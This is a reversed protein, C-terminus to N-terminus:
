GAGSWDLQDTLPVFTGRMPVGGVRVTNRPVTAGELRRLVAVWSGDGGAAGPWPTGDYVRALAPHTNAVFLVIASAGAGGMHKPLDVDKDAMVRGQDDLGLVRLGMTSLAARAENRQGPDPNGMDDQAGVQLAWSAVSRQIGGGRNIMTTLLHDLCRQQDAIAEARAPSVMEGLRAVMDQVTDSDPLEDFLLLDAAALLTGWTDQYRADFGLQQELAQAYRAFTPQWRPWEDVMRRLLRRGIPALRKPSLDPVRSGPPQALLKLRAFRSEDQPLLPVPAISSVMAAFRVTFSHGVHNDGGRLAKGGSSSQRMLEVVAAKKEPKNGAEFEDVFVPQGRAQMAQRLGAETVNSAEQLWDGFLGIMLRQLSSKGSGKEGDIIGHTRWPLAGCVLGQAIWGLTVHAMFSNQWNWTALIGLVEQGPDTDAQEDSPRLQPPFAPYIYPGYRGPRRYAGGIWVTDGLHLVLGGDEGMWAGPGRMQKAPDIIGEKACARMLVNACQDAHLAGTLEGGGTATKPTRKGWTELLWQLEPGFLSILHSRGHKDAELARFQNLADLYFHTGGNVGLPTIPMDAPVALIDGGDRPSRRRPRRPEPEPGPDENAPEPLKHVTAGELAAKIVSIKAPGEPLGEPMSM